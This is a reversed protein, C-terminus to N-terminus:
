RDDGYLHKGRTLGVSLDNLRSSSLHDPVISLLARKAFVLVSGVALGATSGNTGLVLSGAVRAAFLEARVANYCFSDHVLNREAWGAFFGLFLAGKRMVFYGM